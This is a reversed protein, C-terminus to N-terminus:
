SARRDCAPGTQLSNWLTERLDPYDPHSRVARATRPRPIGVPVELAVRGPPGAIVVVRDAMLIAEDIDHTILMGTMASDREWLELVENQLVERTIADVASFPEDLLLLEPEVCLARAIGVRQKMGGSLQHPYRDEVHALNMIRLLRDIRERAADDLRGQVRLGYEVNSRVTKWPFLGFQQFVMAIRPTPELVPAGDLLVTGASTPLLGAVSRMLTTKGGGSTGIICLFEHAALDLTIDELIQNGALRVSIHDVCVKPRPRSTPAGATRLAAPGTSAPSSSHTSPV